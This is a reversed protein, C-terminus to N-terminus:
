GTRPKWLVQKKGAMFRAFALLSAANVLVLYSALSVVSPLARARNFLVGVAALLYLALQGVAALQYVPATRLLFLNTVILAMMPIFVLYRLAKHSWLQWAFLFNSWPALLIRMDWLAWLARLTVRVRMRFEDEVRSLSNERLLAAPEYVVRYGQRVVNLPLVFDPIQDARMPVYLSRRVADVGGDVGVISGIATEGARLLNEYRMYATCGDGVSSGDPNVYIMKGSVYGVQPDAFNELLRRLADPAYLSNADSFVVIEGTAVQLALNLAATKGARPGQRMLRVGRSEFGRVLEDTRDTSGDSVVIVELQDPPYDLALKNAITAGIHREENFAATVITVRPEFPQKRVPRPIVRRLLAVCLPYGAYVYVIWAASLWFITELNM